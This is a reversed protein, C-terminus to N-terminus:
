KEAFELIEKNVTKQVSYEFRMMHVELLFQHENTGQNGTEERFASLM